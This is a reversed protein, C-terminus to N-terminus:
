KSKRMLELYARIFGLLSRRSGYWSKILRGFVPYKGAYPFWNVEAPKTGRDLVVAKQHCFLTLGEEGHYRGIGSRKIGGFPLYPNAITVMVDNICVGGCELLDAVRRAKTLDRSWVSANLGFSSDNALEVAEMEHDFPMVNMVPGFTEERMVKMQPNVQTLVIPQVQLGQTLRWQEPHIGCELEAGEALAHRVHESVIDVQKSFTMSGLDTDETGNQRLRSVEQKLRATFDAYVSREVYIREVSICAQGSNALSGWVAGRVARELNADAFVIMPDKGGLELTTPILRKAAEQQIRAGTQVSGTFFIYDPEAEILRAGLTGDGHAIQVLGEPFGAAAFIREMLKGVLPTVESPKIIVSNGATLASLAPIMALQFPFNWPAIVLVVGRPHYSIASQKGFLTLPTKAKRTKLTKVACSEVHKIADAVIFLEHTAAEVLPKGTAEVILEACEEFHETIYYRIRRLYTLREAVPTQRWRASTTKAKQMMPDVAELPTARIEEGEEGTAPNVARWVVVM